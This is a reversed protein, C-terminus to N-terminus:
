ELYETWVVPEGCTDCKEEHTVRSPLLYEDCRECYWDGVEVDYTEEDNTM